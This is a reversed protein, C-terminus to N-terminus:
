KLETTRIVKASIIFQYPLDLNDSIDSIHFQYVCPLKTKTGQTKGKRNNVLVPYEREVYAVYNCIRVTEIGVIPTLKFEEYFM